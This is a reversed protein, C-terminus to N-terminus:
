LLNIVEDTSSVSLAKNAIEQCEKLDYGRILEKIQPVSIPAMSFEDLGLGLLLKTALPDGAMEGCLGVWKGKSHANKITLAILQVVAPHFYSALEAVRENTRDVALTYQTLDNTGISFFDVEDAYFNSMVAASPVEVMIGFQVNEAIKAGEAMLAARVKAYIEKAKRIEDVSAVLPLMIRLDAGAFGLLLARFQTELVEPRESMMRIARWGLFPNPENKLGLYSVEKDGGIDLTRVVIPRDGMEKAIAQYAKVQDAESPMSSRGLYLFETRLLGVGEAGYNVAQKADDASGINAVVEAQFGDKTIAPDNAKALQTAMVADQAVKAERAKKLEEKSPDLVLLGNTGDLIVEQGDHIDDLCFNVNVCAPVGLSRALIATHSTPGGKITCFGLISEKKFQMTDSPTLDEALIVVPQTPFEFDEPNIGNLAYLIRRGVDRVDQARAKFYENDMGELMLAYTETSTQVGVEANVKKGCIETNMLGVFEPDDLFMQHAEFIEAEETGVDKLAKAHLAKLQGRAVEIANHLRLTEEGSDCNSIQEVVIKVPRYTWAPGVASGTSAPLGSIQKM